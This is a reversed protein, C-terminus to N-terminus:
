CIHFYDSTMICHLFDLPINLHVNDFSLTRSHLTMFLNFRSLANIVSLGVIHITYREHSFLIEDLRRLNANENVSQELAHM